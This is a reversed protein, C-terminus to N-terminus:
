QYEEIRGNLVQHYIGSTFPSNTERYLDDHQHQVQHPGFQDHQIASSHLGEDSFLDNRDTFDMDYDKRATPGKDHEFDEEEYEYEDEYFDQDEEPPTDAIYRLHNGVV